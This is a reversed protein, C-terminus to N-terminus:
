SYSKSHVFKNKESNEGQDDQNFICGSSFILLIITISILIINLIKKM